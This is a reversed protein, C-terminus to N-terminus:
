LNNKETADGTASASGSTFPSHCFRMLVISVIEGTKTDTTFDARTRSKDWM